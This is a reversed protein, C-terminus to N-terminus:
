KKADELKRIWKFGCDVCIRIERETGDKMTFNIKAEGIDSNIKKGCLPCRDNGMFDPCLNEPHVYKCYPAQHKENNCKWYAVWTKGVHVKVEKGKYKCKM